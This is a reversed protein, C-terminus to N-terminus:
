RLFDRGYAADYVVGLEEILLFLTLLFYLCFLDLNIDLFYTESRLGVVVVIVEFQLMCLFEQFAAVLYLCVHKELAAADDELFLAFYKQETECVIQLFYAFHLGHRFQQALAHGHEDCRFLHRRYLFSCRCGRLFSRLFVQAFVARLLFRLFFVNSRFYFSFIESVYFILFARLTYSERQRLM